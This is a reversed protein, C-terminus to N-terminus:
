REVIRSRLAEFLRRELVGRSRCLIPPARSPRAVAQVTNTVMSGLSDSAQLRSTVFLSVDVSDANRGTPPAGCDIIETAPVAGITGRAVMSDGVAHAASDVANITLGNAAFAAPLMAWARDLGVPLPGLVTGARSGVLLTLPDSASVVYRGAGFATGQTLGHRTTADYARQEERARDVITRALDNARTGLMSCPASLGRLRDIIAKGSKASIDKHGAEHVELATLFRNWEIIVASDADAPPTWRPLTIQANVSVSVDRISCGGGGSSETRWSWRMPSRTEGVFSTGDLKPGLKRMDARLEAITRGHIDYYFVSTRGIVGPPYKDLVPNRKASACAALLAASAVLSRMGHTNVPAVQRKTSTGRHGALSAM